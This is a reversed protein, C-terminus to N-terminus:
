VIADLSGGSEQVLQSGSPIIQTNREPIENIELERNRNRNRNRNRTGSRGFCCLAFPIVCLQCVVLCVVIMMLGIMFEVLNTKKPHWSFWDPTDQEPNMALFCWVGVKGLYGMAFFTALLWFIASVFHVFWISTEKVYWILRGRWTRPVEQRIRPRIPNHQHIIREILNQQRNRRRNQSSLPNCILCDNRGLKQQCKSCIFHGHSCLTGKKHQEYCCLCEKLQPQNLM